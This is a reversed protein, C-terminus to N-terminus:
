LSGGAPTAWLIRFVSDTYEITAGDGTIPASTTPIAITASTDAPSLDQTVNQCGTANCVYVDLSRAYLGSATPAAWTIDVSGGTPAASIVTPTAVINSAFLASTVSASPLPAALVAPQYTAVLIDDSLNSPTGNDKYLKVTYVAPVTITQIQADSM